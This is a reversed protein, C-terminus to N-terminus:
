LDYVAFLQRGPATPSSQRLGPSLVTRDTHQERLRFHSKLVTIEGPMEDSRTLRLGVAAVPGTM